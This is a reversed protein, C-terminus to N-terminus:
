DLFFKLTVIILTYIGYLVLLFLFTMFGDYRKEVQKTVETYTIVKARGSTLYIKVQSASVDRGWGEIEVVQGPKLSEIVITSDKLAVNVFGPTSSIVINCHPINITITQPSSGHNEATIRWFCTLAFTPSFSGGENELARWSAGVNIVKELPQATALNSTGPQSRVLALLEPEWVSLVRVCDFLHKLSPSFEYVAKRVHVTVTSRTFFKYAAVVLVTVIGFVAGAAQWFDTSTLFSPLEFGEQTLTLTVIGAEFSREDAM